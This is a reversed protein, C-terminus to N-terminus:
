GGKAPCVNGTGKILYIFKVTEGGGGSTHVGKATAPGCLYVWWTSKATTICVPRGESTGMGVRERCHYGCHISSPGFVSYVYIRTVDLPLM